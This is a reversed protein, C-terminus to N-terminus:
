WCGWYSTYCPTYCSYTVPTYCYTVPTYTYSYTPACYNYSYSTSYWNNHYGGYCGYSGYSGHGIYGSNRRFCAAVAEEGDEKDEGLLSDVDKQGLLDADEVQASKDKAGDLKALMSAIDDGAMLSNAAMVMAVAVFVFKKFM